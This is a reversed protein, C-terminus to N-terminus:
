YRMHDAVRDLAQRFREGQRSHGKFQRLPLNKFCVHEVIPRDVRLVGKMVYAYTSVAGIQAAVAADPKPSSQVWEKLEGGSSLAEVRCYANRIAMAAQQQRLTLDLTEIVEVRYRRGMNNPNSGNENKVPKLVTGTNAAATGTGHDGGLTIPATSIHKRGRRKKARAM